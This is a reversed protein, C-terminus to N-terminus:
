APDVYDSFRASQKVRITEPITIPALRNGSQPAVFAGPTGPHSHADATKLWADGMLEAHEKSAAVMAIMTTPLDRNVIMALFVYVSERGYEGAPLIREREFEILETAMSSQAVEDKKLRELLVLLKSNGWAFVEPKLGAILESQRSELPQEFTWVLPVRVQPMFTAGEAIGNGRAGDDRRHGRRAIAATRQARDERRCVGSHALRSLEIMLVSVRDAEDAAELMDPTM